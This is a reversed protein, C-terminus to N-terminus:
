NKGKVKRPRLCFYTSTLLMTLFISMPIAGFKLTLKSMMLPLWLAARVLSRLTESQAIYNAYKPSHKYYFKVFKVGWTNTLLFRDRFDRFTQVENAMQSGFAATAIFCSKDDLLGVVQSPTGCMKNTDYSGSPTFRSIIGTEDENAMVFCYRVDNKLGDIRNDAAADLLQFYSSSNAVRGLTTADNEGTLQEEYFFVPGKYNIGAVGTSPYNSGTALEDVYVKEDGRFISFYCFAESPDVDVGIPCNAYFTQLSTSTLSRAKIRITATDETTNTSSSTKVGVAISVSFDTSCDGQGGGVRCIESWPIGLSVTNGTIKTSAGNLLSTEDIKAIVNSSTISTADSVTFDIGLITTQGISNKSCTQIGTNCTDCTSTGSCTTSLAATVVSLGEDDTGLQSYGSLSNITIAAKAEQVFILLFCFIGSGLIGIKFLRVLLSLLKSM